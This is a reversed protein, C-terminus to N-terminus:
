SLNRQLRRLLQDFVDALERGEAGFAHIPAREGHARNVLVRQPISPAWVAKKGVMKHLEDVRLEADSSIAPVRNLVVGALDLNPNHETWVEDILDLVPGIGRLGFITPEVVLLAADGAALGSWTNLGLSPACDILTLDFGATVGSLARALRGVTTQRRVDADRETLDGAAPLLWIDDGWGSKVIMDSAAGARNARIADGTGFNELSPDVGLAWTANAQADLDVVLTKLGQAWAASALGLVVTTKGVGGKQNLVAVTRSMQEGELAM